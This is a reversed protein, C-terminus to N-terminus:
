DRVGSLRRLLVLGVSLASYLSTARVQAAYAFPSMHNTDVSKSQTYDALVRAARAPSDGRNRAFSVLSAVEEAFVNDFLGDTGSIIIDGSMLQIEMLQAHPTALTYLCPYYISYLTQSLTFVELHPLSEVYDKLEREFQVDKPQM